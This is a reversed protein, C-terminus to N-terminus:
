CDDSVICYPVCENSIYVSDQISIAGVFVGSDDGSLLLDLTVAMFMRGAVGFVLYHQDGDSNDSDMVFFTFSPLENNCKFFFGV